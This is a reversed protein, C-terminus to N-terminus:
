HPHLHMEIIETLRTESIGNRQELVLPHDAPHLIVNPREPYSRLYVDSGLELTDPYGPIRNCLWRFFPGERIEERCDYLEAYRNFSDQSLSVWVGYSIDEDTGQIPLNLVARVFTGTDRIICVDSTLEAEQAREEESLAYYHYPADFGFDPIGLHMEGCTICKFSYSKSM